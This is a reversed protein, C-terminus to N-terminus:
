SITAVIIPKTTPAATGGRPEETVMVRRVGRLSGRVAVHSSGGNSSVDFLTSRVPEANGHQLWVEYTEGRSARPLRAVLLVGHSGNIEVSADGVSAQVVRASSGSLGLETGAIIAVLVVVLLAGAIAIRPASLRRRTLHGTERADREVRALVRRRLGRPADVRPVSAAVAEVAGRLSELEERCAACHAVHHELAAAEAPELAGLLYAAGDDAIHQQDDIM